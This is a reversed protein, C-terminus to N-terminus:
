SRRRVREYITVFRGRYLVKLDGAADFLRTVHRTYSAVLGGTDFLVADVHPRSRFDNYLAEAHCLKWRDMQAVLPEITRGSLFHYMRARDWRAAIRAEPPFDRRLVDAAEYLDRYRGGEIFEHYRGVHGYYSYYFASRLVLPANVAILALAFAAAAKHFTVPRVARGRRRLLLEGGWFVGHFILLLIMPYMPMMYRARVSAYGVFLCIGLFNLLCTAPFLRQGARWLKAGGAVAAALLVVGVPKLWASRQATFSDVLADPLRTLGV